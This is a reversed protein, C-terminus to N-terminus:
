PWDILPRWKAARDALVAWADTVDIGLEEWDRVVIVQAGWDGECKPKQDFIIARNRSLREFPKQYQKDVMKYWKAGKATLGRSPELEDLRRGLRDLTVRLMNNQTTLEQISNLM